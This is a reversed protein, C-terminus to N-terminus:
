YGLDIAVGGNYRAKLRQAIEWGLELDSHKDLRCCLTRVDTLNSFGCDNACLLSVRETDGYPNHFLM